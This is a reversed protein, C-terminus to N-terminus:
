KVKGSEKLSRYDRMWERRHAKWEPSAWYYAQQCKKSCFRQHSFRAYLWMKCRPCERLRDLRGHESLYILCNLAQGKRFADAPRRKEGPYYWELVWRKDRSYARETLSITTSAPWFEVRAQTLIRPSYISNQTLTRWFKKGATRNRWKGSSDLSQRLETAIRSTAENMHRIADAFEERARTDKTTNLWLALAEGFDGNLFLDVVAKEAHSLHGLSKDMHRM